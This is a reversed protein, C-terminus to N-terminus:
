AIATRLREYARHVAMDSRDFNEVMVLKAFDAAAERLETIRQDRWEVECPGCWDDALMQHPCRYTAATEM